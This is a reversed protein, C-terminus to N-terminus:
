TAAFASGSSKALIGSSLGFSFAFADTAPVGCACSAAMAAVTGCVAATRMECVFICGSRNSPATCHLPMGPVASCYACFEAVGTIRM